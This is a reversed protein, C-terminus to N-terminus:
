WKDIIGTNKQILKLKRLYALNCLFLDMRLSFWSQHLDLFTYRGHTWVLLAEVRHGLMFLHGENVVTRWFDGSVDYCERHATISVFVYEIIEEAM